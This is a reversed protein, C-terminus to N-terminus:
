NQGHSITASLHTYLPFLKRKIKTMLNKTFLDCRIIKAISGEESVLIFSFAIDSERRSINAVIQNQRIEYVKRACM